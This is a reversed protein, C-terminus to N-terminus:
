FFVVSVLINYFIVGLNRNSFHSNQHQVSPETSPSNCNKISDSKRINNDSPITNDADKNFKVIEENSQRRQLHNQWVTKSAIYAMQYERRQTATMKCYLINEIKPKLNLSVKMVNRSLFILIENGKDINNHVLILLFVLSKLRRLIFPSLIKKIRQVYEAEYDALTHNNDKKQKKLNHIQSFASKYDRLTPSVFLQPM